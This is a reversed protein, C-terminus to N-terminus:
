HSRTSRGMKRRVTGGDKLPHGEIYLTDPCIDQEHPWQVTGNTVRVSKFYAIEKLERFVGFSLLPKVDYIKCRGNSFRIRLTHDDNARVARVRPLLRSKM